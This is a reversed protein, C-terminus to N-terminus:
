KCEGIKCAGKIQEASLKMKDALAKHTTIQRGTELPHDALWKKLNEVSTFNWQHFCGASGWAGDPKKRQGFWAIATPPEISKVSGSLTEIRVLEKSVPDHCEVIIDKQLRAAVGLACHPCCGYTQPGGIVKVTSGNDQLYMARDCFGCRVSYERERLAKVDLISGGASRMEAEAAAKDAFAKITPRGSADAGYLYAASDFPVAKGTAFDTAEVGKVSDKDLLCSEFIFWCHPSCLSKTGGSSAQVAVRTKPDVTQECMFCVSEKPREDKALPEERVIDPLAAEKVGLDVGLDKWKTLIAEKAFFGEHRFLEKGDAGYFIQTPIINIGYKDGAGPNEWVDIFEVSLKGAYEKKMEELIPAMMKCPICKGAGLDVLRPLGASSPVTREDQAGGAPAGTRGEPKKANKMYFVVGVALALVVVIAVKTAVGGKGNQEGGM